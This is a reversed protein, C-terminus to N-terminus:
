EKGLFSNFMMQNITCKKGTIWVEDAMNVAEDAKESATEPFVAVVYSDRPLCTQLVALRKRLWGLKVESACEVGFVTGEAHKALVKVFVTKNGFVIPVDFKIDRVGRDNWFKLVAAVKLQEIIASNKHSYIKYKERLEEPLKNTLNKIENHLALNKDKKEM